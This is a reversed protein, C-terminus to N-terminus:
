GNLRKVIKALMGDFISIKKRGNYIPCGLYNFPFPKDMYGSNRIIRNIRSGSTNPATVFFSKDNNMKQGSPKKYRKIQSKILKISHKDGGTFIMIDDVYALHIIIPGRHDM